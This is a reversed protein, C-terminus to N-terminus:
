FKRGAVWNRAFDSAAYYFGIMVDCECPCVAHLKTVVARVFCALFLTVKSVVTCLAIHSCKTM